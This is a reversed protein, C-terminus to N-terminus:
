FASFVCRREHLAGLKSKGVAGRESLRLVLILAWFVGSVKTLLLVLFADIAMAAGRQFPTALKRGLLTPDVGFAVETVIRKDDKFSDQVLTDNM